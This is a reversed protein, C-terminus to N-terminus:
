YQHLLEHVTLEIQFATGFTIALYLSAFVKALFDIIAFCFRVGLNL